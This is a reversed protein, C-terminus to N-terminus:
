QTRSIPASSVTDKFETGFKYAANMYKQTNKCLQLLGNELSSMGLYSGNYSYIAALFNLKM